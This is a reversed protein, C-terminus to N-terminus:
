NHSSLRRYNAARTAALGALALTLLAWAGSSGPRLVLPVHTSIVAPVLVALTWAIGLGAAARHVGIFAGLAITAATFALCPLLTLALSVGTRSSALALSPVIVILVAATRRLLMALGAAPTGAILEWAPDHRRSWAIAVGPLPAVPALLLVLPVLPQAAQLLVACALVALSMVLWPVLHWVLWRNSAVSWRRRRAPAPGAAIERDLAAAVRELVDAGGTLRSRCEACEELHLEVSWMTVEDLDAGPDAYRAIVAASPHTTM